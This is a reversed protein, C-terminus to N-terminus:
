SFLAKLAHLPTKKPSSLPNPLRLYAQYFFVFRKPYNFSHRTALTANTFENIMECTLNNLIKLQYKIPQLLLARCLRKRPLWHTKPLSYNGIGACGVVSSHMHKSVTLTFIKKTTSVIYHNRLEGNSHKSAWLHRFM